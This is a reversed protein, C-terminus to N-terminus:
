LCFFAYSRPKSLAIRIEGDSIEVQADANSSLLRADTKPVPAKICESSRDTVERFILLYKPAGQESVYFGTFSRGSPKEGIPLVDAGALAERHKKWIKMIPALQERRAQPLYQMEQWFLPNSLMVSAFLYDQGYLVPVFPDGAPYCETYLDPNIMELQLKSTPIYKGLMWLNRLIRHPYSNGSRHYRNEVFVTGYQRGCLYNMRANRTVDLQVAVDDGFSYIERLLELFRDREANSLVWFMDLKFFRFGWEEYARRLIAKDRELLAFESHSDPAFWLGLRVGREAAYETLARMGEPFREQSLEWFDGSFERRGQADRRTLDATSGVQWGDDIQVIDVGMDRAADIERRIFSDCVRRFGNRDGWTNSMTILERCIRAHRYYNRCLAECEGIGCFGLMLSNGGNEVSLAGKKVSLTAPQFDPGESVIVIARQTQPDELFFIDGICDGFFNRAFLHKETEETLTDNEDTFARLRVTRVIWHEGVLELLTKEHCDPMYLVALDDWLCYSRTEGSQYTASVRLFPVSLGDNDEVAASAQAVYPFSKDFFRNSVTLIGNELTYQCSKSAKM